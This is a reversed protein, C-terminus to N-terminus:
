DEQIEVLNWSNGGEKALAYKRHGISQECILTNLYQEDVKLEQVIEEKSGFTKQYGEYEYTGNDQTELESVYFVSCKGNGSVSSKLESFKRLKKSKTVPTQIEDTPSSTKISTDEKKGGKGFAGAAFATGLAGVGGIAPILLKLSM